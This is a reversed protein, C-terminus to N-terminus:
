DDTNTATYVIAGGREARGTIYQRKGYNRITKQLDFADEPEVKYEKLEGSVLQDLIKQYDLFIVV